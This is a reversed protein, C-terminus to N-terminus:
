AEWPFETILDEGWIPKLSDKMFIPKGNARAYEVVEEIWERKPVVKDKRNGTEAGLIFWDMYQMAEGACKTTYPALMPEMSAFTNHRNSYFMPMYSDTVTSGYWYADGEPLLGKKCLMIYREPNKTLFLYRHGPAAECADFVKKIWEDPVWNGFMDAMSCVFITKGFGKTKPDDLRYEHFTPTFGFPYAANRVVGDKNTVKLREKLYVINEDTEGGVACDCGKFRNATARAFCYLCDNYCGTIPSWSSDCYEIKTKLM